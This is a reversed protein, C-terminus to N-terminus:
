TYNHSVDHALQEDPAAPASRLSWMILVDQPLRDALQAGSLASAQGGARSAPGTGTGENRRLEDAVPDTTEASSRSFKPNRPSTTRNM